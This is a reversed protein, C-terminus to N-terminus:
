EEQRDSVEYFAVSEVRFMLNVSAERGDRNKAIICKTEPQRPKRHLFLVIDADYELEGSERLLDLTPEKDRGSEQSRSLSSLCLVPIGLRVALEKLAQSVHEVQLRRERIEYPARVLQLYDVILLSLGEHAAALRVIQGITLAKDTMWLPLGRLKPIAANLMVREGAGIRGSKLSSANIRATQALLRRTLALTVMERSVVLTSQGLGAAKRAIELALATKGSGPRGALYVLEGPAFGGSLYRNLSGYPTPIAKQPGAELAALLTDLAESIPIPAPIETAARRLARRELADILDALEDPLAGASYLASLTLIERVGAGRHAMEEKLPEPPCAGLRGIVALMAELTRRRDPLFLDPRLRTRYAEPVDGLLLFAGLISDDLSGSGDVM